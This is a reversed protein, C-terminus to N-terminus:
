QLGINTVQIDRKRTFDDIKSFIKNEEETSSKLNSIYSKAANTMTVESGGQGRPKIKIVIRYYAGTTGFDKRGFVLVYHSDATSAQWFTELQGQAPDEQKVSYGLFLLAEKSARFVDQPSVQYYRVIPPSEQLTGYLAPKSCAAGASLFLIMLCGKQIWHKM